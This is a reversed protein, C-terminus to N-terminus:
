LGARGASATASAVSSTVRLTMGSRHSADFGSDRPEPDPAQAGDRFSAQFHEPLFGGHGILGDFVLDLVLDEGDRQVPGVLEVGEGTAHHLLHDGGEVRGVLVVVDAGDDDGARAATEAGAGVEGGAGVCEVAIRPAPGHLAEGVAIDVVAVRLHAIAAALQ